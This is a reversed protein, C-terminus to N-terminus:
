GKVTYDPGRFVVVASGFNPSGPVEDAFSKPKGKAEARAEQEARWRALDAEPLEYQVRPLYVISEANPIVRERWAITSTDCLFLGVVIRAPPLYFAPGEETVGDTNTGVLGQAERICKEVVRPFYGRAYPPNLFVGRGSWSGSFGDGDSFKTYGPCWGALSGAYNVFALADGDHATHEPWDAPCRVFAGDITSYRSALANEHDAFADFDLGYREVIEAGLSPPTLWNPGPETVHQVAHPM